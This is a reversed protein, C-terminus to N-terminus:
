RGCGSRYQLKLMSLNTMWETVLGGGINKKICRCPVSFLVLCRYLKLITKTIDLVCGLSPIKYFLNEVYDLRSSDYPSPSWFRRYTHIPVFPGMFLPSFIKLAGNSARLARGSCRLHCIAITVAGRSIRTNRCSVTEHKIQRKCDLRLTICDSSSALQNYTYCM